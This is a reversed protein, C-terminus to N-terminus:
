RGKGRSRRPEPPRFSIAHHAECYLPRRTPAGCYCFDEARPDGLPYRCLGNRLQLITIGGSAIPPEARAAEVIARANVVAEAFPWETETEPAPAIALEKQAPSPTPAKAAKVRGPKSRTARGVGKGILGIDRLRGIVGNKSIGSGLRAAIESATVGDLWLRKLEADHALWKSKPALAADAM